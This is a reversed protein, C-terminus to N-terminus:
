KLGVLQLYKEWKEKQGIQYIYKPYEKKLVKMKETWEKSWEKSEQINFGKYNRDVLMWKHHYVKNSGKTKRIELNGNVKYSNKVIPERLCDFGVCEIFSVSPEKENIKVIEFTDSPYESGILYSLATRYLDMQNNTLDKLNSKHIYINNGIRKKM